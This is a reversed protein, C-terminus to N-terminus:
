MPFVVKGILKDFRLGFRWLFSFVDALCLVKSEERVAYM